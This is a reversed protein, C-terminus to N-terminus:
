YFCQLSETVVWFIANQFQRDPNTEQRFANACDFWADTLEPQYGYCVRSWTIGAQWIAPHSEGLRKVVDERSPVRIRGERSRQKDLKGQLQLWERTPQTDTVPLMPVPKKGTTSAHQDKAEPRGFRVTVPPPDLRAQDEINLAMFVRDQFSAHALLAVLAVVREEGALEILRNVEGDTVAHAETMMKRAFAVAARDLAPLRATDKIVGEIKEITGTRAFDAAAVTKAYGCGNADAAAWRALARLRADLRDGSRHLADLEIMRATTLPMPGALIRAWVPLPQPLEPAGPLRKWAVENSLIPLRPEPESQRSPGTSLLLPFLICHVWM